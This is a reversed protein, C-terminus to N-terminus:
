LELRQTLNALLQQEADNGSSADAFMEMVDAVTEKLEPQWALYQRLNDLFPEEWEELHRSLYVIGNLFLQELDATRLATEHEDRYSQAMAKAIHDLFIQEEEEIQGDANVILLVPFFILLTYFHELEMNCQASQKFALYLRLLAQNDDM